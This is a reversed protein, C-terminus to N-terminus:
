CGLVDQRYQTIAVFDTYPAARKEWIQSQRDAEIQALVTAV